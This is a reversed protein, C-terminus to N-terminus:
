MELFFCVMAVVEEKWLPHVACFPSERLSKVKALDRENFAQFADEPLDLRQLVQLPRLGLWRLPVRYTHSEPM